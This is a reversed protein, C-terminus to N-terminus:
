SQSGSPPEKAAPPAPSEGAPPTAAKSPEPQPLPPALGLERLPDLDGTQVCHDVYDAFTKPDKLINRVAAPLANWAEEVQHRTVIQDQLDFPKDINLYQPQGTIPLEGTQQFKALITNIDADKAFQQQTKSPDRCALGLAHSEKDRDYNHPTKFFPPTVAYHARVIEHWDQSAQTIEGTDTDLVAAKGENTTFGKKM